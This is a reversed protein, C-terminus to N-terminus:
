GEKKSDPGDGSQNGPLMESVLGRALYSPDQLARMEAPTRAPVALKWTRLYQEDLAKREAELVDAELKLGLAKVDAVGEYEIV